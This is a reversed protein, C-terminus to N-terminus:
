TLDRPITRSWTRCFVRDDDEFADLDGELYFNETDSRMLTRTETRINWGERSLTRTWRTEGEVSGHDNGISRYWERAHAGVKLGTYEHAYLGQDNIVELVSADRALHRHVIWDHEEPELMLKPEPKAIQPDGFKPREHGIHPAHRVPIELRSGALHVTLCVPEPSPWALPWYSTSLSLRLRHGAPIM